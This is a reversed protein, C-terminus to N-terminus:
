EAEIQEIFNEYTPNEIVNRVKQRNMIFESTREFFESRDKDEQDSLSVLIIVQVHHNGWFVPEELICVAAFSEKTVQGYPHPMAVVEGFDTYGYSERQLVSEYFDDPVEKWESIKGCLFQLLDEKSAFAKEYFFLERSYYTKRGDQEEKSFMEMLALVDGQELFMKVEIIPVPVRDSIPTTTLIYDIGEYDFNKLNSRNCIEVRDLYKGFLKQYQYALMRAGTKGMACVIVINKRTNEGLAAEEMYLNFIMALYGTEDEGIRKNYHNELAIQSQMAILYAKSCNQKIEDLVPNSLKIHYRLRIDMSLLHKSLAMILAFNDRFDAKMTVYVHQLMNDVLKQIYPSIVINGEGHMEKGTVRNGALHLIVYDLETESFQIHFVAEMRECIRLAAHIGQSFQRLIREHIGQEIEVFCGRKIRKMAVYLHAMLNHMSIESMSIDLEALSDAVIAFIQKREAEARHFDSGSLMGRIMVHNAIASRIDFETGSIRVGRKLSIELKVHYEGLYLRTRRLDSMLTSESICLMKMLEDIQVYDTHLLLYAIIFDGRGEVSAPVDNGDYLIGNKYVGSFLAHDEIVLRYGKGKKIEIYAGHVRLFEDLIKMYNRITKESFLLQEGLKGATIYEETSLCKLIKENM